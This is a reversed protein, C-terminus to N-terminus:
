CYFWANVLMKLSSSIHFAQQLRLTHAFCFGISKWREQVHHGFVKLLNLLFFFIWIDIKHCVRTVMSLDFLTLTICCLLVYCSNPIPYVKWMRGLAHLYYLIYQWTFYEWIEVCELIIAATIWRRADSSPLEHCAGHSKITVCAEFTQLQFPVPM